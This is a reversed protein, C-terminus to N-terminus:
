EELRWSKIEQILAHNTFDYQLPTITAYGEQMAIVDIDSSLGEYFIPQANYWYQLKGSEDVKSHFLEEYERAGLKTYKVGKVEERPLNPANINIVTNKDLKGFGKRLTNVALTCALDFHQPEHSNVSIAVSPLGCLCGEIAASVTGSYLTDTGLNGGHNIGSFLMDIRIDKMALFRLGMKVCDAPTGAIQMAFKANDFYVDHVEIGRGITIGHGSASKQEDPACVYVNAEVSLAKVLEYIGQARIGDDNSVLINM